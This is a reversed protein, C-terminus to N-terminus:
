TLGRLARIKLNRDMTEVKIKTVKNATKLFLRKHSARLAAICGRAGQQINVNRGSKEGEGCILFEDYGIGPHLVASDDVTVVAEALHGAEGPWIDHLLRAGTVEQVALEGVPM